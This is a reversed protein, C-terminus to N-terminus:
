SDNVHVFWGGGALPHCHLGTTCRLLDEIEMSGVIGASHEGGVWWEAKNGV